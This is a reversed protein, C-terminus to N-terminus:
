GLLTRTLELTEYVRERVRLGDACNQRITQIMERNNAPSVKPTDTWHIHIALIFAEAKLM